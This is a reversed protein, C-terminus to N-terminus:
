IFVFKRPMCIEYLRTWQWTRLTSIKTYRIIALCVIMCENPVFNRLYKCMRFERFNIGYSFKHKYLCYCSSVHIFNCTHCFFLTVYLHSVVALLLLSSFRECSVSSLSLTVHTSLAIFVALISCLM